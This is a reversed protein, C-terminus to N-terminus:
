GHTGLTTLTRQSEPVARKIWLANGQGNVADTGLSALRFGHAAMLEYLDDFWTANAYSVKDTAVEIFATKVRALVDEAGRLV